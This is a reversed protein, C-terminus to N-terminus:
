AYINIISLLFIIIFLIKSYSVRWKFDQQSYISNLISDQHKFANKRWGVSSSEPILLFSKQLGQLFGTTSDLLILCMGKGALPRSFESLMCTVGSSLLWWSGSLHLNCNTAEIVAWTIFLTFDILFPFCNNFWLYLQPTKDGTKSVRCVYVSQIFSLTSLSRTGM